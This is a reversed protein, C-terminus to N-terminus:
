LHLNICVDGNQQMATFIMKILDWVCDFQTLLASLKQGDTTIAYGKM